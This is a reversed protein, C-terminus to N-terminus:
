HLAVQRPQHGGDLPLEALRLLTTAPSSASFSSAARSCPARAPASFSAARPVRAAPSAWSSFLGMPMMQERM